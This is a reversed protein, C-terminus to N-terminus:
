IARGSKGPVFQAFAKRVRAAPTVERAFRRDASGMWAEGTTISDKVLWREAPVSDAGIWASGSAISDKALWREASVLDAGVRPSISTISNKIHENEGPGLFVDSVFLFLVLAPAALALEKFVPMTMRAEM